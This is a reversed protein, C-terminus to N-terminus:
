AVIKQKSCRKEALTVVLCEEWGLLLTEMGM